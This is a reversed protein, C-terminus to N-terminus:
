TPHSPTSSCSSSHITFIKAERFHVKKWIRARQTCLCNSTTTKINVKKKQQQSEWEEDFCVVSLEAWFLNMIFHVFFFILTLYNIITSHNNELHNQPPSHMLHNRYFTKTPTFHSQYKILYILKSMMARKSAWLSHLYLVTCHLDM